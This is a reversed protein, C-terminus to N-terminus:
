PMTVKLRYFAKQTNPPNPDSLAVNGDTNLVGTLSIDTWTMPGNLDDTSRQLTYKRGAHGATNVNVAQGPGSQVIRSVDFRDSAKLPNTNAVLEAQNSQGDGDTDDNPSAGKPQTTASLGLASVDLVDVNNVTFTASQGWHTAATTNTGNFVRAYVKNGQAPPPYFSTSFQGSQEIDPAIGQGIVTTCLVTDDGGPSGDANPWDAVGNAGVSLIQILCGSIKTYGFADANPNNGPLGSGDANLIAASATVDLPAAIQASGEHSFALLGFALGVASATIRRKRYFWGALIVLGVLFLQSPEPVAAGGGGGGFAQDTTRPSGSLPVFDLEALGFADGSPLNTLASNGFFTANAATNSNWFRVYAGTGAFSDAYLISSQVLFGTNTQTTGAGVHTTFLLSDDGSPTGTGTPPDIVGNPGVLILQVLDGATSYGELPTTGNNDVLAFSNFLTLDVTARAPQVAVALMACILLVTTRAHRM